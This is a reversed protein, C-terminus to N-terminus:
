ERKGSKLMWDYVTTSMITESGSRAVHFKTATSMAHHGHRQLLENSDGLVRQVRARGSRAGAVSAVEAKRPLLTRYIKDVFNM